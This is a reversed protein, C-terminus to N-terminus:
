VARPARGTRASRRASSVRTPRQASRCPSAARSSRSRGRRPPRAGNATSSAQNSGGSPSTVPAVQEAVDASARAPCRNTSIQSSSAVTILGGPESPSRPPQQGCRAEPRSRTANERRPKAPAARNWAASRGSARAVDLAHCTGTRSTELPRGSGFANEVPSPALRRTKKQFFITSGGNVGRSSRKTSACSSPCRACLWMQFDIPQYANNANGTANRIARAVLRRPPM